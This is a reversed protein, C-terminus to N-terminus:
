TVMNGGIGRIGSIIGFVVWLGKIRKSSPSPDTARSKCSVLLDKANKTFASPVNSPSAAPLLSSLSVQKYQETSHLVNHLLICILPLCLQRLLELQHSRSSGEVKDEEQRFVFM